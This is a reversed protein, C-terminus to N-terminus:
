AATFPRVFHSSSLSHTPHPLLCKKRGELVCYKCLAVVFVKAREPPHTHSSFALAFGLHLASAFAFAEEGGLSLEMNNNLIKTEINFQPTALLDGENAAKETTSDFQAANINITRIHHRPPCAQPTLLSFFVKESPLVRPPQTSSSFLLSLNNINKNNELASRAINATYV